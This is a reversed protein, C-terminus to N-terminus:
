LTEWERLTLSDLKSTLILVFLDDWHTMPRKLAQLAHLHKAADDSIRKLDISNKKVV